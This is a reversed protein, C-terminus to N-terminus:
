CKRRQRASRSISPNERERGRRADEEAAEEEDEVAVDLDDARRGVSWARWGAPWSPRTAPRSWRGPFSSTMKAAFGCFCCTIPACCCAWGDTGRHGLISLSRLGGVSRGFPCLGHGARSLRRRRNGAGAFYRTLTMAALTALAALSATWGLGRLVPQNIERRGLLLVGVRQRALWFSMTPASLGVGATCCTRSAWAGARVAANHCSAPRRILRAHGPPDARDYTALSVRRSVRMVPWVVGVCWALRAQSQTKEFM